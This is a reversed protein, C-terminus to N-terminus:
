TYNERTREQLVELVVQDVDKMGQQSIRAVNDITEEVSAGVVGENSVNQGKLAFLAVLYAELATTGAKLSCTAKAGDCLVGALNALMMKVAQTAQELGGGLLHTLGAAAGSGAAVVSGCIPALLGLRARVFTTTLHGIVIAEAIQEDTNRKKEGVMAIPLITLIGSNGSGASSMVPMQVGTMRASVAASCCGRVRYGLDNKLVGEAIMTQMIQGSDLGNDTKQRLGYEAIARNMRIGDWIYSVDQSDMEEVLELLQKYSLARILSLFTGKSKKNSTSANKEFVVTGDKVVKTIAAHEQEIICTAQHHPTVLSAEVYIEPGDMRRIIEVREQRLQELAMSVDAPKCDKLAQLGYEAQGCTMALAAAVANGKTGKVGPIGVAVGNKYIGESVTVRVFSIEENRPLEQAARAVALAVAGPETCGLAPKVEHQLFAKLSFM